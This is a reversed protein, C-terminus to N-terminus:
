MAQKPMMGGRPMKRPTMPAPEEATEETPEVEPVASLDMVENVTYRALNPSSSDQVIKLEVRYEGGDKWKSVMEDVGADSRDLILNSAM